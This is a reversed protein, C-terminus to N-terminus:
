KLKGNEMAYNDNANIWLKKYEEASYPDDNFKVSVNEESLWDTPNILPDLWSAMKDRMVIALIKEFINDYYKIDSHAFVDVSHPFDSGEVRIYYEKSKSQPYAVKREAQYVNFSIWANIKYESEPIISWEMACTTDRISKVSQWFPEDQDDDEFYGGNKAQNHCKECILNDEFYKWAAEESECFIPERPDDLPGHLIVYRGEKKDYDTCFPHQKPDLEEPLEGIKTEDRHTLPSIFPKSANKNCIKEMAASLACSSSSGLDGQDKIPPLSDRLDVASPLYEKNNNRVPFIEELNEKALKSIKGQEKIEFEFHEKPFFNREYELAICDQLLQHEEDINYELCGQTIDIRSVETGRVRSERIIRSVDERLFPLCDIAQQALSELLHLHSKGILVKENVNLALGSLVRPTLKKFDSM